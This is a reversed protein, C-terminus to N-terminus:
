SCLSVLSWCRAPGSGTWTSGPTAFFALGLKRYVVLAALAMVTFYALTHLAVALWRGVCHQRQFGRAANRPRRSLPAAAPMVFPLVMFGAGHASAMLFSWVTLDRFGVQM